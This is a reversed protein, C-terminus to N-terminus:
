IHKEAEVIPNFHAFPPGAPPQESEAKRLKHDRTLEETLRELRATRIQSSKWAPLGSDFVDDMEELTRCILYSGGYCNGEKLKM